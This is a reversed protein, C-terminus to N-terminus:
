EAVAEPTIVYIDTPGTGGYATEEDEGVLWVAGDPAIDLDDVCIHDLYESWTVGDFRAVGACPDEIDANAANVWVSGDPAVRLMLQYIFRHGSGWGEVGDAESFTNWGSEDLRALVSGDGERDEGPHQSREHFGLWLSGDSGIDLVQGYGAENVFGEPGPVVDWANGDFRLLVDDAGPLEGAVWVDGDPSVAIPSEAVSGHFVDAWPQLRAMSGREDFSVPEAHEIRSEMTWVAGDPGIAIGVYRIRDHIGTAHETWTEGDFRALSEIDASWLSGDPAIEIPWFPSTDDGDRISPSGLRHLRDERVVWVSGDPGTVLGGPQGLHALDRHGDNIVRYVGPEVEETVLGSLLEETTM